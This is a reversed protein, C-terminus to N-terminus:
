NHQRACLQLPYSGHEEWLRQAKTQLNVHPLLWDKLWVSIYKLEKRLRNQLM